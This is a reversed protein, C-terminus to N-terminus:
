ILFGGECCPTKFNFVKLLSLFHGKKPLFNLEGNPFIFQALLIEPLIRVLNHERMKQGILLDTYFRCFEKEALNQDCRFFIRFHFLDNCDFVFARFQYKADKPENSKM